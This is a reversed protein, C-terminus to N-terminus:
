PRSLAKIVGWTTSQVPSVSCPEFPASFSCPADIDYAFYVTGGSIASPLSGGQYLAVLTATTDGALLAPGGFEFVAHTYEGAESNWVLWVDSPLVGGDQIVAGGSLSLFGGTEPFSGGAALVVRVIPAPCSEISLSVRLEDGSSGGGVAPPNTRFLGCSGGGSVSDLCYVEAICPIANLAVAFLALMLAVFGVWYSSTDTSTM